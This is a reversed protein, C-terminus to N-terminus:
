PFSSPTCTWLLLLNCPTAMLSRVFFSFHTNLLAIKAEMSNVDRQRAKSGGAKRSSGFHKSLRPRLLLSGGRWPRGQWNKSLDKLNGPAAITGCGGLVILIELSSRSERVRWPSKSLRFPATGNESRSGATERGYAPMAIARRRPWITRGPARRFFPPSNDRRRSEPFLPRGTTNKGRDPPSFLRSQLASDRAKSKLHPSFFRGM